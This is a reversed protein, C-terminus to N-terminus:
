ILLFIGTNINNMIMNNKLNQFNQMNNFNPIQANANIMNNNLVNKIPLNPFNNALNKLGQLNAQNAFNPNNILNNFNINKIPLNNQQMRQQAQQQLLLKNINQLNPNNNMAMNTNAILNQNFPFNLKLNPNNMLNMNMQQMMPNMAPAFKLNTLNAAFNAQNNIPFQGSPLATQFPLNINDVNKEETLKKKEQLYKHFYDDMNTKGNTKQIDFMFDENDELFKNIDEENLRM